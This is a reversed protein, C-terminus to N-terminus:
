RLTNSYNLVEYGNVRLFRSTFIRSIQEPTAGTLEAVESLSGVIIWNGEEGYIKYM